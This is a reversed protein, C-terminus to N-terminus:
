SHAHAHLAPPHTTPQRAALSSDINTKASSGRLLQASARVRSSCTYPCPYCPPAVWPLMSAMHPLCGVPALPLTYPPSQHTHWVGAAGVNPRLAGSKCPKKPAIGLSMCRCRQGCAGWACGPPQPEHVHLLRPPQWPPHSHTHSMAPRAYAQPLTRERMHTRGISERARDKCANVRPSLANSAAM